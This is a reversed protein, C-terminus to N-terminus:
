RRFGGFYYQFGVTATRFAGDGLQLFHFNLSTTKSGFMNVGLGFATGSDTYNLESAIDMLAHGGVVYAGFRGWDWGLKVLAAQFSVLPDTIISGTDDSAMGLELEIGLHRSFQLGTTVNITGLNKDGRGSVEVSGDSIGVGYYFLSSEAYASSSLIGISLILYGILKRM